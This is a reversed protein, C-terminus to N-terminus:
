RNGEPDLDDDADAKGPAPREESRPPYNGRTDQTPFESSAEVQRGRVPDPPVPLDNPPRPGVSEPGDDDDDSPNSPDQKTPLESRPVGSPPGAGEGRTGDRFPNDVTLLTSSTPELNGVPMEAYHGDNDTLANLIDIMTRDIEGIFETINRSDHENRAQPEYSLWRAIAEVLVSPIEPGDGSHGNGFESLKRPKNALVKLFDDRNPPIGDAKFIGAEKSELLHPPVGTIMEYWTAAWARLDAHEMYNGWVSTKTFQERPSYFFSYYEGGQTDFASGGHSPKRGEWDFLQLLVERRGDDDVEDVEDNPKVEDVGVNAPKVDLHVGGAKWETRLATLLQDAFVWTKELTLQGEAALRRYYKDLTDKYAKRVIVFDSGVEGAYFVQAIHSDAGIDNAAGHKFYDAAERKARKLRFQLGADNAEDADAAVVHHYVKVVFDHEWTKRGDAGPIETAEYLTCIDKGYMRRGILWKEEGAVGNKIPIGPRIQFVRTQEDSDSGTDVPAPETPSLPALNSEQAEEEDNAAGRFSDRNPDAVPQSVPTPAQVFQDRSMVKPRPHTKRRRQALRETLTANADELHAAVLASVDVRQRDNIGQAVDAATAQTAQKQLFADQEAAAVAAKRDFEAAEADAARNLVAQDNLWQQHAQADAAELLARDLPANDVATQTRLLTNTGYVSAVADNRAAQVYLTKGSAYKLLLPMLDILVLVATLYWRVFALWGHESIVKRLAEERDLLDRSNNITATQAAIEDKVDQDLEASAVKYTEEAAALADAAERTRLQAAGYAERERQTDPGEGRVGTGGTGTAEKEFSERAIREQERALILADLSAKRADRIRITEDAFRAPVSVNLAAVKDSHIEDLKVQIRDDFVAMIIPEAIFIGIVVALVFRTVFMGVKSKKGQESEGSEMPGFDIYGTIWRDIFFVILGWVVGVGIFWHRYGDFITSCFLVMASGGILAILWVLAGQSILRSRESRNLIWSPEAGAAFLFPNYSRARFTSNQSRAYKKWAKNDPYTLTRPVDPPTPVPNSVRWPPQGADTNDIPETKTEEGPPGTGETDPM